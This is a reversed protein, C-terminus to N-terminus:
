RMRMRRRREGGGGCRRGCEECGGDKEGEKGDEGKGGSRVKGWVKQVEVRLQEQMVSWLYGRESNSHGVTVVCAGREILRLADHHSLEGTFYLDAEVGGEGDEGLM